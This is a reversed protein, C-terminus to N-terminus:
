RHLFSPPPSSTQAGPCVAAPSLTAMWEVALETPPVSFCSQHEALFQLPCTKRKGELLCFPAPKPFPPRPSSSQVFIRGERMVEAGPKLDRFLPPLLITSFCLPPPPPPSLSAQGASPFNSALDPKFGQLSCTPFPPPPFSLSPPLLHSLPLPFPPFSPPSLLLSLQFTLQLCSALLHKPSLNCAHNPPPALHSPASHPFPLGTGGPPKTSAPLASSLGLAFICHPQGEWAKPDRCQGPSGASLASSHSYTCWQSQLMLRFVCLLGKCSECM